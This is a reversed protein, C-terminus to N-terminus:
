CVESVGVSSEVPDATEDESTWNKNVPTRLIRFIKETKYISYIIAWHKTRVTALM